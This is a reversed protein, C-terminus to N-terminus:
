FHWFPRNMYLRGKSFWGMRVSQIIISVDSWSLFEICFSFPFEDASTLRFANRGCLLPSHNESAWGHFTRLVVRLNISLPIVSFDRCARCGFGQPDVVFGEKPPCFLVILKRRDGSIMGFDFDAPMWRSTKFKALIRNQSSSTGTRIRLLSCTKERQM